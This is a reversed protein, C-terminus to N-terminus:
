NTGSTKMKGTLALRHLVANLHIPDQNLTAPNLPHITAVLAIALMTVAVTM